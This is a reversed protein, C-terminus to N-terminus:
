AMVMTFREGLPVAFQAKALSWERRPMTWPELALFLIKTAADDILFHGTARVAIRRV